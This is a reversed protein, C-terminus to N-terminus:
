AGPFGVDGFSGRAGLSGPIGLSKLNAHIANRENFQLDIKVQHVQFVLKVQIVKLEQCDKDDRFDLHEQLSFM